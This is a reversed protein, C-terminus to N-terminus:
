SEMLIQEFTGIIEHLDDMTDGFDNSEEGRSVRNKVFTYFREFDDRATLIISLIWEENSSIKDEYVKCLKPFENNELFSVILALEFEKRLLTLNESVESFQNFDGAPIKQTNM